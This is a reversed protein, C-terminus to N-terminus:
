ITSPRRWSSRAPAPRAPSSSAHRRHRGGARDPRLGAADATFRRGAAGFRGLKRLEGRLTGIEGKLELARAANALAIKLRAFDVPKTLYDAAGRRLAEVATEVSAHGTILVM